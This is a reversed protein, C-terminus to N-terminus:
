MNNLKNKVPKLVFSLIIFIVLNVAAKIALGPMSAIGMKMSGYILGGAFGYAVIMFVLSVVAALYINIKKLAAFILPMLSKIILTPLAWIPYGTIVDALASGIGGALIGPVTGCLFVATLIMSDGLHAYGLPIPIQIVMTAVCIIAMFLGTLCMKKIMASTDAATKKKMETHVTM